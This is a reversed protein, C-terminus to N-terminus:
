TQRGGHLTNSHLFTGRCTWAPAFSTNCTPVFRWLEVRHWRLRSTRSSSARFHTSYLSPPGDWRFFGNEDAEAIVRSADLRALIDEPPDIIDLRAVTDDERRADAADAREQQEADSPPATAPTVAPQESPQETIPTWAFGQLMYKMAPSLIEDPVRAHVPRAFKAGPMPNQKDNYWINIWRLGHRKIPIQVALYNHFYDWDTIPGYLAGKQMM